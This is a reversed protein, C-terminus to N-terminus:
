LFMLMFFYSILIGTFNAAMDMFEFDREEKFHHRLEHIFGIVCMPFYLFKLPIELDLFLFALVTTLVFYLGLHGVKDWPNQGFHPFMKHILDKRVALIIFLLLIPYLLLTFEM